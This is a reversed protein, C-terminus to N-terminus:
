QFELAAGIRHTAGLSNSFPMYGYDISIRHMKMGIGASIGRAEYGLQYGARVFCLDQYGFETGMHTQVNEAFHKEIDVAASWTNKSPHNKLIDYVSGLRLTAPLKVKEDVFKGSIGVNSIMVGARWRDDMDPSGLVGKIQYWAGLDFALASVSNQIREYIYKSTIGLSLQGNIKRAYSLGFALDHSSFYATPSESPIDRQEIDEVGTSIYHLAFAHSGYVFKAAGYNHQIGDIWRNYTFIINHNQSQVLGAPNWFAATADTTVATATEGMGAARGGIGIKLFAFGTEGGGAFVPRIWQLFFIIVLFSNRM